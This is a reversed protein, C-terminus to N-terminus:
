RLMGYIMGSFYPILWIFWVFLSFRHFTKKEAERNRIIVIIAWLAHLFMLFIATIGTISHFSIELTHHAIQEMLTTGTIDFALGVLFMAVHWKKLMKQIQESWVGISYFILAMTISIVAFILMFTRDM